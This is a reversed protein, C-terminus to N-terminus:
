RIRVARIVDEVHLERMVAQLTPARSWTAPDFITEWSAELEARLAVPWDSFPRDEYPASRTGFDAEIREWRAQWADAGEDTRAPLHYFRNLVAHWDLFESILVRERAVRVSILVESRGRRSCRRLTARSPAPWLWILGGSPGPIGRADLQSSMWTYAEQFAPEGREPEGVLVGEGHLVEYAEPTQLTHMTLEGAARDGGLRLPPAAYWPRRPLEEYALLGARATEPPM